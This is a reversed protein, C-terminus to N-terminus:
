PVVYRVRGDDDVQTVTAEAREGERSGRVQCKFVVGKKQEVDDPCDVSVVDTKPNDKEVGQEIGREVPRVDLTKRKDDGGCGALALAALAAATARLRNV